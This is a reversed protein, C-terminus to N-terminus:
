NSDFLVTKSVPYAGFKSGTDNLKPDKLQSYAKMITLVSEEEEVPIIIAAITAPIRKAAIMMAAM